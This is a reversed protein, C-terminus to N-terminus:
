TVKGILSDIVADFLQGIKGTKTAWALLILAVTAAALLVLAYEATAQGRQAWSMENPSSLPGNPSTFRCRGQHCLNILFAQVATTLALM